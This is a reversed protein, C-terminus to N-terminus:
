PGISPPRDGTKSNESVFAAPEGKPSKGILFRFGETQPGTDQLLLAVFYDTNAVEGMCAPM